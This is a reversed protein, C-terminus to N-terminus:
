SKSGGNRHLLRFIGTKPTFFNEATNENWLARGKGRLFARRQELRGEGAVNMLITYRV